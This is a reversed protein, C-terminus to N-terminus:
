IRHSMSKFCSVGHEEKTAKAYSVYKRYRCSWFKKGRQELSGRLELSAFRLPFVSLNQIPHEIDETDDSLKISLRKREKFFNGNYGYSWADVEWEQHSKKTPSTAAHPGDNRDFSNLPDDLVMSRLSEKNIVDLSSSALYAEVNDQDKCVLVDGPRFLFSISVASVMGREFQSDIRDYLESYNANIWETLNRVLRAQRLSLKDFIDPQDRYYYWWYYPAVMVGDKLIIPTKRPDEGKMLLKIAEKMAKSVPRLYEWSPIPDPIQDQKLAETVKPATEKDGSYHREIVFEFSKYQIYADPYLVPSNAKLQFMKGLEAWYPRELYTETGKESSIHHLVKFQVDLKNEREQLRLLRENEIQLAKVREQLDSVFSDPQSELMHNHFRLADARHQRDYRRVGRLDGMTVEASATSSYGDLERDPNRSRRKSMRPTIPRPEILDPIERYEEDDRAKRLARLKDKRSSGLSTDDRSITYHSARGHKASEDRGVHDRSEPPPRPLPPSVLPIADTFVDEDRMPSKRRSHSNM